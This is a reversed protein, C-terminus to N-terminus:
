QHPLYSARSVTSAGALERLALATMDYWEAKSEEDERLAAAADRAVAARRRKM